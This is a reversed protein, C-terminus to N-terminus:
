GFCSAIVDRTSRGAPRGTGAVSLTRAILVLPIAALGVALLRWDTSIAIVELGILLFSLVDALSSQARAPAAILLLGFAIIGIHRFRM